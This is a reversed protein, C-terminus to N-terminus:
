YDLLSDFALSHPYSDGILYVTGWNQGMGTNGQEAGIGTNSVGTRINSQKSQKNVGTGTNRIPTLEVARLLGFAIM